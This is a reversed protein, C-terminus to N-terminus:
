LARGSARAPLSPDPQGRGLVGSVRDARWAENKLMRAESAAFCMESGLIFDRSCSQISFM